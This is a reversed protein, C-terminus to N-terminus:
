YDLWLWSFNLDGQFLRGTMRNAIIISSTQPPHTTSSPSKSLPSNSKFGSLPPSFLSLSRSFLPPTGSSPKTSPYGPSPSQTLAQSLLQHSSILSILFYRYIRFKGRMLGRKMPRFMLFTLFLRKLRKKERESAGKRGIVLRFVIFAM